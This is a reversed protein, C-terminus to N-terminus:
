CPRRQGSYGYDRQFAGAVPRRRHATSLWMSAPRGRYYSPAGVPRAPTM